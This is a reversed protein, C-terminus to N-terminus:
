RCAWAAASPRDRPRAQRGPGCADRQAAAARGALDGGDDYEQRRVIGRVQRHRGDRDVAATRRDSCSPLSGFIACYGCTRTAPVASCRPRCYPSCAARGSESSPSRRGRPTRGHRPSPSPWPAPRPPGTRPAWRRTRGASGPRSARGPPRAGPQVEQVHQGDVHPGLHHERGLGPLRRADGRPRALAARERHRGRGAAAPRGQDPLVPVPQRVDGVGDDTSSAWCSSPGSKTVTTSAPSSALVPM